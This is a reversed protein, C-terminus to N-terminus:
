RKQRCADEYARKRRRILGLENYAIDRKDGVCMRNNLWELCQREADLIDNFTKSKINYQNAVM